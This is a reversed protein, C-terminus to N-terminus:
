GTPAVIHVPKDYSTYTDTMFHGPADMRVQHVRGAADVWFTFWIPTSQSNGFSSVMTTPVGDFVEHGIVHANRLPTFFDWVFSPVTNPEASPQQQWPDGPAQQTYLTSGIWITTGTNNVTWTTRDPVDSSYSSHVIVIGTSLVESVQYATLGKMAADFQTLLAEGSPAPLAPITFQAEGGGRNLVDVWVQDGPKIDITAERCTDGCPVLDKYAGNVVINAALGRAATSGEIPLLYVTARNLGPTGPSLSLGVLVGGAAGAMTLQGATPLGAAPTAAATEAVQRAAATPPTPFSALLAAAAVVCAALAAEIRVHPRKLRWAMASLPLMLAVLTMKVLLVRGYATGFLAQVSGLQTIAELGGAVVTAAFAGLAVPTFRALLVRGDSSRWGGPPRLVALAAIGGAWLGAAVLHVADLGIGYWAPAVAAAHGSAALMVLAGAVWIPLTRWARVVAILTLTEFLLRAVLAAGSFGNFFALYEAPSHGGSGVTAEAWVAVLGASLAISSARFGPTVWALPPSRRALSSVLVQGALFLLSLAEVWKVIGIAIDSPQPGPVANAAVEPSTGVIGVDFTFSSSIRHGDDASVSTWDVTYVGSANTAMPVRIEQAGDVGGTWARGTPDIVSAHSLTSNLQQDFELTVVGPATGLHAGAPPSSATLLAHASAAIPILLAAFVAIIVAACRRAGTTVYGHHLLAARACAHARRRKAEYDARTAWTSGGGSAVLAGLGQHRPDHTRSVM